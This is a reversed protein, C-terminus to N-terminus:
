MYGIKMFACAPMEDYTYEQMNPRGVVPFNPIPTMFNEGYTSALYKGPNEPVFVKVGKFEAPVPKIKEFTWRRARSKQVKNLHRKKTMSVCPVFSFCYSKDGENFYYFVDITTSFDRHKYCEEMGDRNKLYYHRVREFGAKELAAKIREHDEYWASTDLDFDHKIFDHERYYGLLTGYDIWFVIGNAFMADSYRRLVDVAERKFAENVARMREQWIKDRRARYLKYLITKKLLEKLRQRM